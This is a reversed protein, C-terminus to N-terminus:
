ESYNVVLINKTTDSIKVDASIRYGVLWLVHHGDAVLPIQNRIASPIKENKMYDSLSQKDGRDNIVIYDGM